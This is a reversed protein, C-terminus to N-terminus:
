ASSQLCAFLSRMKPGHDLQLSFLGHLLFSSTFFIVICLIGFIGCEVAIKANDGWVPQIALPAFIVSCLGALFAIVSLSLLMFPAQLAFVLFPNPRDGHRTDRLRDVVAQQYQKEYEKLERDYRDKSELATSTEFDKDSEYLRENPLVLLQQSGMIIAVLAFLMCAYFSATASWHGNQTGPWQLCSAVTTFLFGGAVQIYSSESTKTRAWQRLLRRQLEPRPERIIETM